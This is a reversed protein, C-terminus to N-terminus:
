CISYVGNDASVQLNADRAMVEIVTVNVKTRESITAAYQKKDFLTPANDRPVSVIVQVTAKRPTPLAHDSAQITLQLFPYCSEVLAENLGM